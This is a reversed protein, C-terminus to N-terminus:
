IFREPTDVASGIAKRYTTMEGGLSVQTDPTLNNDVMHKLMKVQKESLVMSGQSSTGTVVDETTHVEKVKPEVVVSPSDDEERKFYIIGNFTITFNEVPEGKQDTGEYAEKKLVVPEGVPFEEWLEYQAPNLSLQADDEGVQVRINWFDYAKGSKKGIGEMHYGCPDEFLKMVSLEENVKFKGLTLPVSLTHVTEKNKNVYQGKILNVM